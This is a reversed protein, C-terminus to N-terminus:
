AGSSEEDLPPVGAEGVQDTEGKEVGQLKRQRM